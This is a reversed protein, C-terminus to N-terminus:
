ADSPLWFEVTTGAGPASTVELRGGAVEVWDRMSSMGLHGPASRVPVRSMGEGDDVVRVLVGGGHDTIRVSVRDAGAHRAANALAEKAIRYATTHHSPTLTESSESEVSWDTGVPDLLYAAAEALSDGLGATPDPAELEFLLARLREAAGIVADRAFRVDEALAPDLEGARRALVGLRLDAAAIVQVQDQHVGDAIRSREDEQASVLRDLLAGREEAVEALEDEAEMRHLAGSVLGAFARSLDVEDDSFRDTGVAVVTLVGRSRQRGPVVVALGSDTGLVGALAAMDASVDNRM